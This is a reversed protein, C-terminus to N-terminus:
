LLLVFEFELYITDRLEGPNFRDECNGLYYVGVIKADYMDAPIIKYSSETNEFDKVKLKM